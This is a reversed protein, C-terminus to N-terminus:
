PQYHGLPVIAAPSHLPGGSRGKGLESRVVCVETVTFMPGRYLAMAHAWADLPFDANRSSTRALTLHPRGGARHDPRFGADAAALEVQASLKRISDVDEAVGAWLTRGGFSGAGSLMIDFPEIEGLNADLANVYDPLAGDPVEGHFALTVHRQEKTVWRLRQDRVNRGGSKGSERSGHRRRLSGPESFDGLGGLALDLHDSAEESLYVCTFLRM